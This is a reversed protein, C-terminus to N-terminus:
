LLLFKMVIEYFALPKEAHLWHGAAEIENLKANSFKQQITVWDEPSIYNSKGGKIFLTAGDFSGDVGGILSEYNTKINNIALKWYYEGKNNRALNKLIFQRVGFNPLLNELAKDADKRSNILTLDVSEIANFIEYHNGKYAKPAIDAVLLKKILQPHTFALQMAVKGGMSHGILNVKELQQQQIFNAIDNAMLEYDMTADHPSKGHNRQDILYVKFHNTSLTDSFKRGLTAWNDLMGFLGHLILLPEGQEGYKKYNLQM